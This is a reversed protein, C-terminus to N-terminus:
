LGNGRKHLNLYSIIQIMIKMEEHLLIKNRELIKESFEQPLFSDKSHNLFDVKNRQNVFTLIIIVLKGEKMKKHNLGEWKPQM